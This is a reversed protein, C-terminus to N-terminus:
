RCYNPAFSNNVLLRGRAPQRRRMECHWSPLTSAQTAFASQNSLSKASNFLPTFTYHTCRDM